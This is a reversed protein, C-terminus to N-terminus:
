LSKDELLLYKQWSMLGYVYDGEDFKSSRSFLVRGVCAAPMVDGPNVPDM